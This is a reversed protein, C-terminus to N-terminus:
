RGRRRSNLIVPELNSLVQRADYANTDGPPRNGRRMMIYAHAEYSRSERYTANYGWPYGYAYYPFRYRAYPYYGYVPPPSGSGYWTSEADTAQEVVIFYDYRNELTLEAARYLLFAEVTERPTSSNGRFTVRYRNTEIRQEGYGYRGNMPGYVTTTECGSLVLAALVIVSFLRSM